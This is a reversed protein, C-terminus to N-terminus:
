ISQNVPKGCVTGTMSGTETGNATMAITYNLNVSCHGSAGDSSFSLGGTQTGTMSFAGTTQNSTFNMTQTISPDGNFTWVRNASSTAKCNNYNNTLQATFNGTTENINMNGTTSVTGGNPCPGSENIPTVVMAVNGNASQISLGLPSFGGIASMADMMEEVQATTLNAEPALPNDGGCAVVTFAMAAVFARRFNTFKM